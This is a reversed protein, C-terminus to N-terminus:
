NSLVPYEIKLTLQWDRAESKLRKLEHFPQASWFKGVFARGAPTLGSVMWMGNIPQVPYVLLDTGPGPTAGLIRYARDVQDEAQKALDEVIAKLSM